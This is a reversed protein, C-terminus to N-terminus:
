KSELWETKTVLHDGAVQPMTQHHHNVIEIEKLGVRGHTHPATEDTTDQEIVDGVPVLHGELAGPDKAKILGYM